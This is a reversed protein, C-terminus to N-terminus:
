ARCLGKPTRFLMADDQDTAEEGRRRIVDKIAEELRDTSYKDKSTFAGLKGAQHILNPKGFIHGALRQYESKCDEVPMRLRALM